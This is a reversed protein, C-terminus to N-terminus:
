HKEQEVQKIIAKFMAQDSASGVTEVSGFGLETAAGAIRPSAVLLNLRGVEDRTLAGHLVSLIQHSTVVACSLVIDQLQMKIDEASRPIREYVELYEVTAGRARLTESLHERGGNGRVILIKTDEVQGLAPEMLLGESTATRPTVAKIGHQALATGTADGVALFNVLPWQPWFQDFLSLGYRAAHQSVFIVHDYLDLQLAIRKMDETVPQAAISLLPCVCCGIGREGLMVSLHSESELPRTLLVQSRM